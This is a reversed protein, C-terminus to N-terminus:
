ENTFSHRPSERADVHKRTTYRLVMSTASTELPHPKGSPGLEESSASTGSSASPRSAGSPGLKRSTGSAALPRASRNSTLAQLQASSGKFVNLDLRLGSGALRGNDTYQWFTFRKWGGFLLPRPVRYNAVWLPYATFGRTNRMKQRWFLRGTYLIPNRGTLLTVRRLWTRTWRSLQTPNLAGADELDLVPPLIGPGDLSGTTRIFFNAEATADANIQAFTVGSPRAYHYAGWVMTHRVAARDSAYRGNVYDAGETAKLFTFAAGGVRHMVSWNVTARNEHNNSSVDPGVIRATAAGAGAVNVVMLLAAAVAAHILATRPLRVLAISAGMLLAPLRLQSGRRAAPETAPPYEHTVEGGVQAKGQTFACCVDPTRRSSRDTSPSSWDHAHNAKHAHTKALIPESRPPKRARTGKGQGGELLM